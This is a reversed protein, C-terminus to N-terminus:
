LTGLSAHGDRAGGQVVARMDRQDGSDSRQLRNNVDIQPHKLLLKTIQYYKDGKHRIKGIATNLITEFIGEFECLILANVDGDNNRVLRRVTAVDGTTVAKILVKDQQSQSRALQSM